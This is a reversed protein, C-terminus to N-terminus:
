DCDKNNVTESKEVIASEQVWGDKNNFKINVWSDKKSLIEVEDGKKLVFKVSENSGPNVRINVYEYNIVGVQGAAFASAGFLPLVALASLGIKINM